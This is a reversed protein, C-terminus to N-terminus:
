RVQDDKFSLTQYKGLQNLDMDNFENDDCMQEIQQTSHDFKDERDLFFLTQKIFLYFIVLLRIKEEFTTLFLLFSLNQHFISCDFKLM